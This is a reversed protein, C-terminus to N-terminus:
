PTENIRKEMRNTAITAFKRVLSDSTYGIGLGSVYAMSVAGAQIMKEMDNSFVIYGIVAGVASFMTSYIRSAMFNKFSMASGLKTSEEALDGLIHAFFGLAVLLMVMDM